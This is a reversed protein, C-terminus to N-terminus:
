NQRLSEIYKYFSYYERATKKWSFRKANNLGAKQLKLYQKEDEYKRILAITEDLNQPLIPIATDHVVEPLSSNMQCAVICGCAQAEIPSIGFGEYESTYLLLFSTNYIECLQKSSPYNFKTYNVGDLLALEDSTLDGGGAIIFRYDKLQKLIKTALDFRKYGKRGGIYVINKQRISKKFFYSLDDYGNHIVIIPKNIEPYYKLMDRKTNESICVIGNSKFIAKKKQKIFFISKFDNRYIEHMFDHVTTINLANYDSSVRYYSSHFIFSNKEHIKVPLFRKVTLLLSSLFIYQHGKLKQFLLNNYANDYVYHYIEGPMYKSIQSFVESIGGARQLSFIIDDYVIKM